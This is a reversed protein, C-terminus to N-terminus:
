MRLSRFEDCNVNDAVGALPETVGPPLAVYLTVSVPKFPNLPDTSKVVLPRGASAVADNLGAEILGPDLEVKVTVVVVLVGIPLWINVIVPVPPEGECVLVVATVRFTTAGGSKVNDATGVLAEVVGPALALYVTFTPATLPNLPGTFRVAFPKGAPAAANNLGAEGTAPELEVNITVVAAFVGTPLLVSVTLPVLPDSM